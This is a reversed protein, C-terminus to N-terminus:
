RETGSGKPQTDASLARIRREIWNNVLMGAFFSAGAAAVTYLRRQYRDQALRQPHTENM